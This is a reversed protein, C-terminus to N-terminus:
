PGLRETERRKRARKRTECQVRCSLLNGVTTIKSFNSRPNQLIKGDNWCKDPLTQAGTKGPRAALAAEPRLWLMTFKMSVQPLRACWRKHAGPSSGSRKPQPPPLFPFSGDGSLQSPQHGPDHKPLSQAAAAAASIPLCDFIEGIGGTAGSLMAAALLGSTGEPSSGTRSKAPAM